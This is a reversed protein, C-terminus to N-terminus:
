QRLGGCIPCVLEGMATRWEREPIGAVEWAQTNGEAYARTAETVSIMEECRPDDFIEQMRKVLVPFAERSEIWDGLTDQLRAPTTDTIGTM